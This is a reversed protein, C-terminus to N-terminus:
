IDEVSSLKESLQSVKKELLANKLQEKELLKEIDREKKLSREELM